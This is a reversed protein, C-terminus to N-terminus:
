NPFNVSWRLRPALDKKKSNLSKCRPIVWLHEWLYMESKLWTRSWKYSKLHIFPAGLCNTKSGPSSPPCQFPISMANSAPPQAGAGRDQGAIWPGKCKGPGMRRLCHMSRDEPLNCFYIANYKNYFSVTTLNFVSKRLEAPTHESRVCGWEVKVLPNRPPDWTLLVTNDPCLSPSFFPSWCKPLLKQLIKKWTSPDRSNSTICVLGGTSKCGQVWFDCARNFSSFLFAKYHM